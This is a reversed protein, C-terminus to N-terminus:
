GVFVLVFVWFVWFGLFYVGGGFCLCCVRLVVDFVVDVGVVVFDKLLDGVEDEVVGDVGVFSEICGM